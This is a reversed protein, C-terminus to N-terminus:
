RHVQSDQSTLIESSCILDMDVLDVSSSATKTTSGAGVPYFEVNLDGISNEFYIENFGFISGILPLYIDTEYNNARVTTITGWTQPDINAKELIHYSKNGEILALNHYITDGFVKTITKSGNQAKIEIREFWFPSPELVCDNGTSNVRVRLKLTASNLKTLSGQQIQGVFRSTGQLLNTPVGKFNITQYVPRGHIKKVQHLPVITKSSVTKGNVRVKNETIAKPRRGLSSTHPIGKASM